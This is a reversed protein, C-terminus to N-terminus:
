DVRKWIDRYLTTPAKGDKRPRFQWMWSQSFLWTDLMGLAAKPNRLFKGIISFYVRPKTKLALKIANLWYESTLHYDHTGDERSELIFLGKACKELQNKYPYWGGLNELLVKAFHAENSKSSFSKSGKSIINPNTKETFHMVTTGLRSGPKMIRHCIEFFNRLIEDQKGDIADQVQTFHEMSGNAIVCDFSNNWEKPIDLYNMVEVNLGKKINRVQQYKSLTIGMAKSGRRNATEIIRGYGCGIDLLFTEKKCKVKDLLWEAKNEQAKIYSISDNGNYKGDTFDTVDWYFSVDLMDYCIEVIKSNRKNM